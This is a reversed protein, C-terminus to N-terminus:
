ELLQAAAMAPMLTNEFPLQGQCLRVAHRLRDNFLHGSDGLLHFM